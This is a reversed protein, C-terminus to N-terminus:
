IKRSIIFMFVMLSQALLEEDSKRKIDERWKYANLIMTKKTKYDM